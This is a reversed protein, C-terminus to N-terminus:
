SENRIIGWLRDRLGDAHDIALNFGDFGLREVLTQADSQLARGLGARGGVVEFGLATLITPFIDVSSAPQVADSGQEAGLVMFMNRRESSELKGYVENRMSLHDSQIVVVTNELLHEKRLRQIFREVLLNTCAFAKLTENPQRTVFPIDECIPSIHGEPAHGGVTTLTLSFRGDGNQLEEVQEYAVALMDEDHLGWMNSRGPFRHQLEDFGLSREYGHTATFKRTGAFDLSAGKLYVNRYGESQLIDGLCKAEPLIEEVLGFANKHIVGLSFLPVGCTSAVQGAITWGTLNVQTIDRASWGQTSLRKLPEAVDGFREEDWFTREASEVFIHILNKQSISPAAAVAPAVYDRGLDVPSGASSALTEQVGIWMLPNFAFLGVPLVRNVTALALSRGSLKYWCLMLLAFPLAAKLTAKVVETRVDASGVDYNLHFLIADIDVNGFLSYLVYWLAYLTVATYTWRLKLKQAGPKLKTLGHIVLLLVSFLVAYTTTTAEMYSVILSSAAWSFATAWLVPGVGASGSHLIEKSAVSM